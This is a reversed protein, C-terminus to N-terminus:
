FFFAGGRLIKLRWVRVLLFTDGNEGRV